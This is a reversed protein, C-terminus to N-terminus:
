QENIIRCTTDINKKKGQVIALLYVAIMSNTQENPLRSAAVGCNWM